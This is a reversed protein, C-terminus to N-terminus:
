AYRDFRNGIARYATVKKSLRRHKVSGVKGIGNKPRSRFGWFAVPHDTNQQFYADKSNKRLSLVISRVM